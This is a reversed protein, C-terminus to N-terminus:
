RKLRRVKEIIEEPSLESTNMLIAKEPINISDGSKMRNEAETESIGRSLLRRYRDYDSCYLHIWLVRIQEHIM